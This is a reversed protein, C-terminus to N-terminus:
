DFFTWNVGLSFTRELMPYFPTTYYGPRLLSENIHNFKFYLYAQKIQTAFFADAAVYSPVRYNAPFFEGSIPDVTLGDYATFYHLDVGIRVIAAFSLSRNEYYFSSTGYLDPLYNAYYSLGTNSDTSGTQWNISPQWYFRDFMRLRMALSIGFWSLLDGQSAQQLQFEPDFYIMRRATSLFTEAKFFNPLLTDGKVIPAPLNLRAGAIWRSVRQNELDPNAVYTNGISSRFQAQYLTPNHSRRHFDFSLELLQSRLSQQLLSDEESKYIPVKESLTSDESVEVLLSDKVEFDISFEKKRNIVKYAKVKPLPYFKVNLHLQNEPEFIDSVKQRIDLHANGWSTEWDGYVTQIFQNLPTSVSDQVLSLREYELTGGLHLRLGYDITYSGGGLLHLRRSKFRESIASLTDNLTPLVKILNNELTTNSVSSVSGNHNALEWDFLARLSLRHHQDSSDPHGILHYYNDSYVNRIIKSYIAPNELVVTAGGSSKLFVDDLNENNEQVIGDIIQYSSDNLRIEGGNLDDKLQNYTYNNFSHFRRNKSRYYASLYINQHDTVFDPYAGVSQRRQYYFTFNLQSNLNRSLTIDVRQLRRSAQAFRINVYPTKSDLYLTHKQANIVYANFRGMIPNVWSNSPFYRDSLGYQTHFYPKGLQGLSLTFGDLFDLEDWLFSTAFDYSIAQEELRHSYLDERSIVRTDPEIEIDEPLLSDASTTDFASQFGVTEGPFGSSPRNPDYPFNQAIASNALFLSIFVLGAILDTLRIFHYPTNRKM